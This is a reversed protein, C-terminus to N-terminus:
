PTDHEVYLILGTTAMALARRAMNAQHQFTDFVVLDVLPMQDVDGLLRAKYEDYRETYHEQEPRVGDVMVLIESLPLRERVSQLTELIMRTDPHREIPSTSILCTIQGTM